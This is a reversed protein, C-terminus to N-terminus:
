CVSLKMELLTKLALMEREGESDERGGERRPMMMVREYQAKRLRHEEELAGAEKRGEKLVKVLPQLRRKEQKIEKTIERLVEELEDQSSIGADGGGYDACGAIDIASRRTM